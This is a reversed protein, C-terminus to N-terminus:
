TCGGATRWRWRTTSRSRCLGSGGGAGGGTAYREVADTTRGGEVFGGVVYISGGVRAAAVETRALNGAPLPAWSLAAAVTAALLM